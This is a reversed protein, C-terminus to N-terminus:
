GQQPPVRRLKAGQPAALGEEGFSALSLLPTPYLSFLSLHGRYVCRWSFPRAGPGLREEKGTEMCQSTFFGCAKSPGERRGLAGWTGSSSGGARPSQTLQRGEECLRGGEDMLHPPLIRSAGKARFCQSPLERCCAPAGPWAAEEGM